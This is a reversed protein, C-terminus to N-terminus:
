LGFLLHDDPANSANGKTDWPHEGEYHTGELDLLDSNRAEGREEIFDRQERQTFAKGATKNMDLREKIQQYVQDSQAINRIDRSAGTKNREMGQIREFNAFFDDDGGGNLLWARAEADADTGTDEAAATWTHGCKYCENEYETPSTMISSIHKSTCVTCQPEDVQKSLFPAPENYNPPLDEDRTVQTRPVSMNPPETWGRQRANQLAMNNQRMTLATLMARQQEPPMTDYRQMLAQTQEDHAFPDPGWEGAVHSQQSIPETFVPGQSKNDYEQLSQDGAESDNGAVPTFTMQYMDRDQASVKHQYQMGEPSNPDGSFEGITTVVLEDPKVQDVRVIDPISYQASHM